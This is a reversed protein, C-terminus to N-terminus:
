KNIIRKSLVFWQVYGGSLFYLWI